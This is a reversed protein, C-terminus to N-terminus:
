RDAFLVSSPWSTKLRSIWNGILHQQNLDEITVFLGAKAAGSRMHQRAEAHKCTATGRCVYCGSIRKSEAYSRMECNERGGGRICGSCLKMNGISELGKILERYDFDQPGWEQLSYATILESYRWTLEPLTGNGVICSACWIGCAGIQGRVNEFAKRIQGDGMSVV